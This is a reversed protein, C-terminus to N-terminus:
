PKSVVFGLPPLARPNTGLWQAVQLFYHDRHRGPHRLELVRVASFFADRDSYGRNMLERYTRSIVGECETCSVEESHVHNSTSKKKL